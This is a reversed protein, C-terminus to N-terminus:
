KPAEMLYARKSPVTTGELVGKVPVNEFCIKGESHLGRMIEYVMMDKQPAADESWLSATANKLTGLGKGEGDSMAELIKEYGPGWPFVGAVKGPTPQFPLIDIRDRYIAATANTPMPCCRQSAGDPFAIATTAVYTAETDRGLMLPQNIRSAIVCDPTDAHVMLGVIEAPSTMFAKRMAEIPNGLHSEEDMLSEILHCMVESSHVCTGDSLVPYNGIPESVRTRFTHGATALKDAIANKDWKDEFIGDHGNALYAMRRTCDVFPHAWERDGGSKSRSHIIGVTGPLHEADTEKRLTAVDGIVKAYHLKGDAITAIGSYYGGGFGEQREMIELMIPAAAKNGIYGAVNCM